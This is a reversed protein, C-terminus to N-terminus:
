TYCSSKNTKCILKGLTVEQGRYETGYWYLTSHLCVAKEQGEGREEVVGEGKRQESLLHCAALTLHETGNWDTHTHTHASTMQHIRGEQLVVESGTVHGAVEQRQLAEQQQLISFKRVRQGCSQEM